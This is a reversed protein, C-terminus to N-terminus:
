CFAKKQAVILENHADQFTVAPFRTATNIIHLVKRGDLFMLALSLKDGFVLHEVTPVSAEFRM